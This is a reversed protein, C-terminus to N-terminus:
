KALSAIYDYVQNGEDETLQAEVRMRQVIPIWQEKSYQSPSPLDHCNACNNEFLAQGPTPPGAVTVDPVPEPSAPTTERKTQVSSGSSAIRPSCAFVLTTLGIAVYIKRM